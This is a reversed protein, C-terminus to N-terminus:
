LEIDSSTFEKRISKLLHTETQFDIAGIKMKICRFGADIKDKIQQKMFTESGMWILGNIPIADNNKTFESPFLEFENNSYLSKFAMELGFRISPFAVLEDLLCDLGLHINQCTWDLKSEYDPRDDMSLGRFVGCEGVGQKTGEQLIIFWTEKTKL